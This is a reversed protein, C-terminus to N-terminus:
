DDGRIAHRVVGVCLVSATGRTESREDCIFVSVCDHRLVTAMIGRVGPTRAAVLRPSTASSHSLLDHACRQREVARIRHRRPRNTVTMSERARISLTDLTRARSISCLACSAFAYRYMWRPIARRSRGAQIRAVHPHVTIPPQTHPTYIPEAANATRIPRISDLLVTKASGLSAKTSRSV